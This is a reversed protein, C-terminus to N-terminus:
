KSKCIRTNRNGAPNYKQKLCSVSALIKMIRYPIVLM